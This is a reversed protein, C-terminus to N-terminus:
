NLLYLLLYKTNEKDRAQDSYGDFHITHGSIALRTEEGNEITKKRIYDADEKSDTCVFVSKPNCHEVYKAVFEFLGPNNLETLKQYGEKGCKTELSVAHQTEELKKEM